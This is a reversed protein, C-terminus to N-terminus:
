DDARVWRSDTPEGCGADGFEDWPIFREVEYQRSRTEGLQGKCWFGWLRARPGTVILTWCPLERRTEGSGDCTGCDTEMWRGDPVKGYGVGTGRCPECTGHLLVVRHRWEARRFAVSGSHRRRVLGETVEHYRGKLILSVFWWPHDHLARDDDSRLFKHLYINLWRNRPIVYWRLLYPRDRGGIIQHPQRHLWKRLWRANSPRNVREGSETHKSLDDVVTAPASDGRHDIVPQTPM